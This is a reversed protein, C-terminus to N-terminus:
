KASIPAQAPAPDVPAATVEEVNARKLLERQLEAAYDHDVLPFIASSEEDKGEAGRDENGSTLVFLEAVGFMREGYSSNMDVNQIQRYPISIERRNVIGSRIVLAYEDLKFEHYTYDYWASLSVVGAYVLIGLFIYGAIFGIPLFAQIFIMAIVVLLVALLRRILSIVLVNKGFKYYVGQTFM